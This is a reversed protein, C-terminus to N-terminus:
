GHAKGPINEMIGDMVECFARQVAHASFRPDLYPKNRQAHLAKLIAEAMDDTALPDFYVPYDGSIERLVELDSCALPAGAAMSELCVRGFGECLTPYVVADVCRYAQWMEERSVKGLLVIRDPRRLEQPFLGQWRQDFAGTILLIIKHGRDWLRGLANILRAINKRYEVGGTYLLLKTDARYGDRWGGTDSTPPIEAPDLTNYVVSIKDPPVSFCEMIRRRSAYSVTVIHLARELNRRLMHLYYARIRLPYAEFVDIFCTDHITIVYPIHRPMQVDYYPSFVLDPNIGKVTRPFIMNDYVPHRLPRPLLSPWPTLLNEVNNGAHEVAAGPSILV